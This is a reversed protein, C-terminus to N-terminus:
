NAYIIEPWTPTYKIFPRAYPIGSENAYGIAHAVGSDPVGRWLTLICPTETGRQLCAAATIACKRWMSEKM